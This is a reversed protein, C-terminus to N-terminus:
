QDVIYDLFKDSTVIVQDSSAPTAKANLGAAGHYQVALQLAVVRAKDIDPLDYEEGDVNILPEALMGGRNFVDSSM